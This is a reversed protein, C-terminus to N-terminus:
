YPNPKYTPPVPPEPPAKGTKVSTRARLTAVQERTLSLRSAHKGDATVKQNNNM